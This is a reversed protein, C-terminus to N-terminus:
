TNTCDKIGLASAVAFVRQDWPEVPVNEVCQCIFAAGCCVAPLAQVFWDYFGGGRGLRNGLGDFALGPVIVLTRERGYKHVPPTLPALILGDAHVSESGPPVPIGLAGRQWTEWGRLGCESPAVEVVRMRPPARSTVVPVMIRKGLRAAIGALPWCDVETAMPVYVVVVEAALFCEWGAIVRCVEASEERRQEASMAALRRKIEARLMAKAGAASVEDSGGTLSRDPMSM